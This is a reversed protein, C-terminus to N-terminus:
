SKQDGKRALIARRDGLIKELRSSTQLESQANMTVLKDMTIVIKKSILPVFILRNPTFAGMACEFFFSFVM